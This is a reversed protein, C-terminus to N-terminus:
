VFGVMVLTGRNKAINGVTVHVLLVILYWQPMLKGGDRSRGELPQRTLMTIRGKARAHMKNGVMHKLRQYYTPGIFIKANLMEGTIGSYMTEWGYRNYAPQDGYREFNLQAMRECVKDAVNVSSHTFPSADGYEGSLACVKGLACEILQNVTMRSPICNHSVLGNAVFSHTDAITTFDYVYESQVTEINEVFTTVLDGKQFCKLFKQYEFWMGNMRTKLYEIPCRSERRKQNCYRYDVTRVLKNINEHTTSFYLRLDVRDQYKTKYQHISSTIGFESYLQAIQEMYLKHSSLVDLRSRCPISKIRIQQQATKWNVSVKSGDGGQYGSLFERKVSSSGNIIWHPVNRKQQTKNGTCAGLYQLLFALSPEPEVVITHNKTNRSKPVNLGLVEIDRELEKVDETEGVYLLCRMSGTKKNRVCLHGDSEVLGLIRALINTKVTSITGTLGLSELRDWYLGVGKVITLKEGDDDPLPDVSHHVLIKDIYPVLHRTEKWHVTKGDWVLFQHEPTCKIKRGSTTTIQRLECTEKVFGDTFRTTSVDLTVPDITTIDATNNKHYIDRIYKVEGNGLRVVSDGSLCHPNIIIDPVIGEATFPMDEQRYIMGVTGKQAARSAFKDGVTPRRENRIVVKILKYGNPTTQCYVRDVIGTEDEQAVRSVDTKTEEGTKSCKIIIKGVLVDGKNIVMGKKIVGRRCTTECNDHACKADHLTELMSYNANKRKFYDPHGTKVSTNHNPPLCILQTSYNDGKKECDEITKYQTIVFLGRDISSGNFIVSDEQNFGTYAAIAVIANIGSPMENYGMMDAVKTTVLPRQPYHLMYILNDARHKYSLMPVGLAQKGMNSQYCNRPSQSHDPFPIMAAIVGLMVVPHIECYDNYQIKSDRPYMAIVSHSLETDDIYQIINKRVLKEWTYKKTGDIVLQNNKMALLPRLMRGEDCYILIDEDIEDYAVSVEKDIRGCLRMKRVFDVVEDPDQTIGIISGNLIVRSSTKVQCLKVDDAPVINKCEEIVEKVMIPDIRKSFHALIATNLAIGASKGEPTEAPCIMGFQTPHIQRIALNKGEKGIPINMRRLHSLTAAWTMRDLIQCVGTKVYSNKYVGWNGSTFAVLLGKTITGKMRSIVSMVDPRQKRKELKVKLESLYRKFLTRFLDYMLLGSVEVRRNTYSDRDDESRMGLFTSLLKNVMNGLFLAKEKISGSVGFHPLLETEVVQMAYKVHNDKPITHMGYKGIYALAEEQTNIAYADRTIIRMFKRAPVIDLGILDIIEQDDTYGMAKFVIGIPIPTEIYPLSFVLTRDDIGICAQLLVSHGTEASMSRVEAIYKYKKTQKTQQKTTKKKKKETQKQKIVFIKNYSARIQGVLVREKGKIIFYGGPDNPCEGMGMQEIKTKGTLNCVSSKLMIPVRGLMVRHHTAVETEGKEDIFTERIDCNLASSYTLNRIRADAPTSAHLNRDEEIVQPSAVSIQGFTVEYKQGKKPVLSISAEQRVIDQIGFNIFDNFSQIQYHIVGCENFYAQLIDWSQSEDM